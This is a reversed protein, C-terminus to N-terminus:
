IIEVVAFDDGFKHAQARVREAIDEYGRQRVPVSNPTEQHLRRSRATGIFHERARDVLADLLDADGVNALIVDFVGGPDDVQVTVALDPNAAAQRAAIEALEPQYDIATVTAGMRAAALGLICSAGCGFDLVTKGALDLRQLRGLVLRTSESWWPYAAHHAYPTIHIGLTGTPAEEGEALVVVRGIEYM